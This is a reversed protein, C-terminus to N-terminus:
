VIDAILDVSFTGGYALFIDKVIKGALTSFFFRVPPMRASGAAAGVLDFLPNPFTSLLFITLVGNRRMWREFTRYMRRQRLLDTGAYGLGYGSFEGIADGLGAVLGVMIETPIGLVPDLVVASGFIAVTSPTPLIITASGAMAIFFVGLYGWDKLRELDVNFVFYAIVYSGLLVVLGAIIAYEVRFRSRHRSIARLDDVTQNIEEAGEEVADLRASLGEPTESM